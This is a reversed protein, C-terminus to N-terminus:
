EDVKMLYNYLDEFGWVIKFHKRPETHQLYDQRFRLCQVDDSMNNLHEICDDVFIDCKVYQKDNTAIFTKAEPFWKKLWEAKSHHHFGIVKSVFIVDYKKCLSPIYEVADERPLITDYLFANNFFEKGNNHSEEGVEFMETLDYPLDILTTNLQVKYSKKLPYHGSLYIYWNVGIRNLVGDVDLALIKRSM